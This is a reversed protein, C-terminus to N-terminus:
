FVWALVFLGLMLGGLGLKVVAGIMMGVWTGLGVGSAVGLGRGHLIEGAIAGIFPGLVLGPLGLFLGLLTGTAAGILGQRSAGVQQAGLVGALLDLSQAILALVGVIVVTTVGVFQFGDVWAALLMGAFVLPLGPLVPLVIGILGIVMILGAIVYLLIDLAM